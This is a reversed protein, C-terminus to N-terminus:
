RLARKVNWRARVLRHRAEKESCGRLTAVIRCARARLKENTPKVDVMLNSVVKGLRIMSITTLMNLVLKTATGAKLRTSGTIVEPGTNFFLLEHPARSPKSFCLLFTKTGCRKAEDLAGVVFPTSGSAAIGVVVDRRGVGRNRIAEAGAFPDDEAAEVASHLAPAGGAIMAQVMEPDTSFTPPCESADLVGLRGSTGAGVYFLRGGRKFAAIITNIARTIARKNARLAPIVRAEENLMTDILRSVNRKHLDTTRPNRLETAPLSETERNESSVAQPAVGALILAGVATDRRLVNVKAGPLMTRVRNGVLIALKRHHRLVGGGLVVHPKDLGLKQAVAHCDQALFSAAQLMLGADDDVFESALSAIEDKGAQQIWDVLQDYSNLCLRRLIAQNVHGRRDYDRIANRLGTLAIWYASGHDGLLHGWGGARATQGRANRGFVCSGTGSVVFIGAGGAGFAASFGSDLDSGAFIAAKPWACRALQCVRQRDADTRCGSLCIAARTPKFKRLVALIQRDSTLKLNLPGLQTRKLIRGRADALLAITKTGGGEIGLVFV